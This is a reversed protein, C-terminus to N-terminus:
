PTTLCPTGGKRRVDGPLHHRVEAAAPGGDVLQALGEIEPELHELQRELDRGAVDGFICRELFGFARRGHGVPHFRHRAADIKKHMPSIPMPLVVMAAASHAMGQEAAARLVPDTRSRPEVRFPTLACPRHPRGHPPAEGARM